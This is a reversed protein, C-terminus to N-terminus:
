KKGGTATASGGYHTDGRKTTTDGRTTTDGKSSAEAGAQAGAVNITFTNGGTPGGGGGAPPTEKKSGDAAPATSAAPAAAAAKDQTLPKTSLLEEPTMIGQQLLITVFQKRQETTLVAIASAFTQQDSGSGFRSDADSMGSFIAAQDKTANVFLPRIQNKPFTKKLDIDKVTPNEASFKATGRLWGSIDQGTAEDRGGAALDRMFMNYLRNTEAGVEWQGQMRNGTENAGVAKLARGGLNRAMQGLRNVPAVEEIIEDRNVNSYAESINHNDSKM